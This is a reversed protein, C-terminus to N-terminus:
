FNPEDSPARGRDAGRQDRPAGRSDSRRNDNGGSRNDDRRNEQRGGRDEGRQYGRDEQRGNDRGGRQDDDRGRSEGTDRLKGVFIVHNAKIKTSYKKQGDKEYVDTRIEGEVSVQSGKQLFKECAEATGGWVEVRHWETHEERKSEKKNFWSTTTALRLTCVRSEGAFRVEPDEGLNGLLIVKNLGESM